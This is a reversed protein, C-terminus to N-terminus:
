FIPGADRGEEVEGLAEETTMLGSHRLIRRRVGALTDEGAGGLARQVLTFLTEATLLCYGYNECAIRLAGTFQEQRSDPATERYGNAVVVGKLSIGEKLLKEELRRQLRVYPWEVVEGRASEAELLAQEGESAITMPESAGGTVAFGLMRLADAVAEAFLPGDAWLLRRHRELVDHAERAAASRAQAEEVGSEAAELEAEAQELGPVAITRTWYPPQEPIATGTLRRCVDVLAQAIDSRISGLSENFAPVFVVRGGLLPFEMAIPVASGGVALVRGAARLEPQRDDFTARYAIESRFNRIVPALPHDEAIVRATKGEAARLYPPGWTIGGPAALWHYRDCGEFGLIGGEVANAKAFVLVTGGFELLRRTEEARRRLQDAAGAASASGPANVVPRGDFAEFEAGGEVLKRASFTISAPDIILADYDAYSPATFVNYNDISADPLAYGIALVRM